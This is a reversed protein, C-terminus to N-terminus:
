PFSDDINYYVWSLDSKIKVSFKIVYLVCYFGVDTLKEM